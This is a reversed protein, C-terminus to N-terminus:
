SVYFILASSGFCIMRHNLLLQRKVYIYFLCFVKIYQDLEMTSVNQSTMLRSIMCLCSYHLYEFCQKELKFDTHIYQHIFGFSYNIVRCFALYNDARWGATNTEKNNSFSELKCFNSQLNKISVHYVHVFNGFSTLSKHLKLWQFTLEIISKVIGLFLLHMPLDIYHDLENCTNWLPPFVITSSPNPHNPNRQHLEKAKSVIYRRNFSQPLGLSKMYEDAMSLNWKNYYVNHFCFRCGQKLWAFTQKVPLLYTIKQAERHVPPTPSTPHQEKPYKEPVPSKLYQNSSFYNWNSCFRCHDNKKVYDSQWINQLRELLCIKCSPLKEQNIYASYKWRRTTLGNHALIHTLSNREPRDASMVLVKSIVFVRGKYKGSYMWKGNSLDELETILLDNMEDHNENKYGLSLLYTHQNSIGFGKNACITVTRMWTSHKNMQNSTPEFDDSWIMLFLIITSRKKIDDIREMSKNNLDTVEKCQLITSPQTITDDNTTNDDMHLGFAIYHEIISRLHIFAHYETVHCTSSPLQNYLAYKNKTYFRSIDNCVLPLRTSTMDLSKADNLLQIIDTHFTSPLQTLVNALKLHFTSEEITPLDFSTTSQAFSQGVLHKIAHPLSKAKNCFFKQSNPPLSSTALCQQIVNTTDDVISDNSENTSTFDVTSNNLTQTSAKNSSHEKDFHRNALYTNNPHFRCQCTICVVWYTQCTPCQVELRNYDIRTQNTTGQYKNRCQKTKCTFLPSTIPNPRSRKNEKNMM